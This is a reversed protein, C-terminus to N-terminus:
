NFSRGFRSAFGLRLAAQFSREVTEYLEGLIRDLMEHDLHRLDVRGKLYIAAEDGVCFALDRLGDNRRLLQEFFAGHNEEPAPMVYSEVGLTRQDLTFWVSYVDKAEGHVRVFWRGEREEDAVIAAVMPLAEIVGLWSELEARAARQVTPDPPALEDM